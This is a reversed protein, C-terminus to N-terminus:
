RLNAPRVARIMRDNGFIDQRLEIDSFGRGELVRITEQGLYQNIEFYLSGGPQLYNMGLDAICEFFMLPHDDPVFLAKPPEYDKVNKDMDLKELQRVYPPNSIIVDFHFPLATLQLIDAQIWTVEVHNATANERAVTLVEDSIDLAHVEANQLYKALSVAICGSGTGVDLIRLTDQTEIQVYNENIEKLIWRTLGETEPRPILVHDNVRFRLDMFWSEGLIYQIPQEEKLLSLAKFFLTEEEKTVVLDPRLALVFKELHLYHSLLLGFFSEVEERRYQSALEKHFITRIEKLMMSESNWQWGSAASPTGRIEWQSM